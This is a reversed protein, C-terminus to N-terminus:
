REAPGGELPEPTEVRNRGREKARYLADDAAAVLLAADYMGDDLWSVGVSARVSVEIPGHAESQIVVPEDAIGARFKEAVVLAGDLDTEPLLALFEEGGYRVLVDSARKADGLRRAVEVLVADGAQHGYTDNVTKFFDLDVMLCALPRGTRRSAAVLEGVRPGLQSRNLLGTLPDTAAAVLLRDTDRKTRLAARVRARLEAASFPKVIYDVAGADLGVVRDQTEVRATLFIVPPAEPGSARVERCVSYGDMGPMAIDLVLLDPLASQALSLAEVGNTAPIVGYGERLLLTSVMTLIDPDDDAVLIRLPSGEGKGPAAAGPGLGSAEM